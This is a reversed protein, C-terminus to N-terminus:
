SSEVIGKITTIPELEVSSAPENKKHITKILFSYQKEPELDKVTYHGSEAVSSNIIKIRYYYDDNESMYLDAYSFPVSAVKEWTINLSDVDINKIKINKLAAPGENAFSFRLILICFFIFLLITILLNTNIGM